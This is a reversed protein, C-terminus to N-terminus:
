GNRWKKNLLKDRSIVKKEITELKTSNNWTNADTEGNPGPLKWFNRTDTGPVIKKPKLEVLKCDNFGHKVEFLTKGLEKGTEQAPNTSANWRKKKLEFIDPDIM